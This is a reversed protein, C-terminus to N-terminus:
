LEDSDRIFAEQMAVEMTLRLAKKFALRYEITMVVDSVNVDLTGNEKLMGLRMNERKIIEEDEEITTPLSNMIRTVSDYLADVHSSRLTAHHNIIENQWGDLSLQGNGLVGTLHKTPLLAALTPSIVLVEYHPSNPEFNLKNDWGSLHNPNEDINDGYIDTTVYRHYAHDMEEQALEDLESDNWRWLQPYDEVFGYTTFLDNTSQSGSRGYTNYIPFGAPIDLLSMVYVGGDGDEKIYTNIKGNHHNMLDYMPVIGSDMARTLIIKFAGFDLDTMEKGAICGGEGKFWDVHHHTDGQPPLGQLERVASGPGDSRDWELPLRSGSSDDFDFYDFWKSEPGMGMEEKIVEVNPCWDVGGIILSKPIHMIATEAPIDATAITGRINSDTEYGIAVRDDVPVFSPFSHPLLFTM